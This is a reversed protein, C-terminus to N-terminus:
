LTNLLESSPVARKNVKHLDHISTIDSHSNALGDVPLEYNYALLALFILCINIEKMSTLVQVSTNGLGCLAIALNQM